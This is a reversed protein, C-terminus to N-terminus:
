PSLGRLRRERWLRPLDGQALLEDERADTVASRSGRSEVAASMVEDSLRLAEAVNEGPDRRAARSRRDADEMEVARAIARFFARERESVPMSPVEAEEM